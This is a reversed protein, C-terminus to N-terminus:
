VVCVDSTRAITKKVSQAPVIFVAVVLVKSALMTFVIQFAIVIISQVDVPPVCSM